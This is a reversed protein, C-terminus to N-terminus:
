GQVPSLVMDSRLATQVSHVVSIFLTKTVPGRVVTVILPWINTV